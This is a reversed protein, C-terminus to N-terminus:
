RIVMRLRITFSTSAPMTGKPNIRINTIAGDAGDAGITAVTPAYSWSTGGDNSYELDDATSAHSIFGYTLTSSPSGQIFQIPGSGAVGLDGVYLKMGSPVADAVFLSNSSVSYASPTTVLLDYSVVGGPIMIATTSSVGHFPDSYASSVKTFGIPPRYTNTYTCTITTGIASVPITLTNSSQGNTGSLTGASCALASNYNAASGTTFSEATLTGTEGAYVTFNGSTDSENATNAVSAFATTNSFFGTSAPLSVANNVIASVWTKRLRLTATKPTNTITCIIPQNTTTTVTWTPSSGGPTYAVGDKTCAITANYAAALTNTSGSVMSDNIQYTTSAAAVWGGTSAQQGTGSGGTSASTQVTGSSNRIAVTFQDGSSVRRPGGVVKNVTISTTAAVTVSSCGTSSAAVGPNLLYTAPVIETTTGSGSANPRTWRLRLYNRGGNNNWYLRMLICANSTPTSFIGALTEYTDEDATYSAADGVPISYSATRYSTNSYDASLDLDVADDHSIGFTYNGSYPFKILAYVVRGQADNACAGGADSSDYGTGTTSNTSNCLTSYGTSDGAQRYDVTTSSGTRTANAIDASITRLAALDAVTYGINNNYNAGAKDGPGVGQSGQYDEWVVQAQAPVAALVCGAWILCITLCLTAVFRHTM